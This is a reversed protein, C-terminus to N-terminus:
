ESQCLAAHCGDVLEKVKFPKMLVSELGEKNAKVISHNPDYGFATILIVGTSPNKKKAAAFVEYGSASPMKIDSIVLDFDCSAVMELAQAGDSALEVICGFDCLVDSVTQRILEEDDAVLVKKGVLLPDKQAPESPMSLVGSEPSKTLQGVVTRAKTASDIISNLRGRLDDLGIYDEMVETAETIIDNLPGSLEASISGSIKTHTTHREVVLLNLMNLALAIYNAFIEAIQRDDESFCALRHSEINMVGVVEDHLRLPVTLSSKANKLGPLYRPDEKANHCIYSHGTAAVYGCIGNDETSAFLQHKECEMDLGESILMELENTRQNLLLVTFHQYNLVERFCHIVGEQVLSLRQIPDKKSSESVELSVLERGARDIANLKQQQRRQHSADVVVAVVQKLLNRRDRIPSCLVEFYKGDETMLSYRRGKESIGHTAFEEYAEKCVNSLPDTIEKPYDKLPRNAWVMEGGPGVICVGDGVTDLVTAAQQTVIGRELPLFDATEALVADFHSSRMFHIAEDLERAQHIEFHDKLLSLIGESELAPGTLVLLKRVETKEAM